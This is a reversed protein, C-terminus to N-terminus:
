KGTFIRLVGDRPLVSVTGALDTRLLAAGAAELRELTAPAPHGYRNEGVEIVALRPHVSALFAAGTSNKSGHHPVKLIDARLDQGGVAGSRELRGVLSNEAGFGIDGTMLASMGAFEMKFVLSSDNPEASARLTPSPAFVFIRGDGIRIRDGAGLALLPIGRRSIEEALGTWPLEAEEAVFGGNWFVIGVRYNQLVAALGGFHDKQPHSIFVAALEKEPLLPGLERIVRSDPGTDTLLAAGSPLISLEADGQGVDLFHIGAEPSPHFAIRSWVLVNGFILFLALALARKLM